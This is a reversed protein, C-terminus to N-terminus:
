CRRMAGKRRRERGAIDTSRVASSEREEDEDDM